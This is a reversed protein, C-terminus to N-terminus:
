RQLNHIRILRPLAFLSVSVFAVLLIASKPITASLPLQRILLASFTLLVFAFGFAAVSRAFWQIRRGFLRVILAPFLFSGCGFLATFVVVFYFYSISLAASLAFTYSIFLFVLLIPYLLAKKILRFLTASEGPSVASRALLALLVIGAFMAPFTLISTLIAM